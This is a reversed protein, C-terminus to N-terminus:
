IINEDLEDVIKVLEIMLEKTSESKEKNNKNIELAIGTNEKTKESLEVVNESQKEIRKSYKIIREVKSSIGDMYNRLEGFFGGIFEFSNVTQQIIKNESDIGTAIDNIAQRADVIDEELDIIITYVEDTLRDTEAALNEIASAVEKFSKREKGARAAEIGANLSLMDIQNSMDLISTIINKIQSIYEIFIDIASLVNKNNKAILYTKEKLDVVSENNTRLSSYSSNTASTARVVEEKVKALMDNINYTMNKQETASELNESNGYAISDFSMLINKTSDGIDSIISNTKYAQEKINKGLDITDKSLDLMKNKKTELEQFRDKNIKGIMNSSMNISLMFVIYMLIIGMYMWIFYYPKEDVIQVKCICSYISALIVVIGSLQLFKPEGYITCVVIIPLPVFFIWNSEVTISTWLFILVFEALLVYKYKKSNERKLLIASNIFMMCSMSFLIIYFLFDSYSDYRLEIMIGVLIIVETITAYSLVLKNRLAINSTERLKYKKMAIYYICVIIYHAIIIVSIRNNVIGFMAQLIATLICAIPEILLILPKLIKNDQM